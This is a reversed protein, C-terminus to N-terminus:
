ARRSRITRGLLRRASASGDPLAIRTSHRRRSALVPPSAASRCLAVRVRSRAAAEKAPEGVDYEYMTRAAWDPSATVRGGSAGATVPSSASAGGASAAVRVASPSAVLTAAPASLDIMPVITPRAFGCRTTAVDRVTGSLGTRGPGATVSDSLSSIWAPQCTLELAGFRSYRIGVFIS